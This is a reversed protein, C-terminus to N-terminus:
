LCSKPLYRGSNCLFQACRRSPMVRARACSEPFRNRRILMKPERQAAEGSIGKVTPHDRGHTLSNQNDHKEKPPNRQGFEIM